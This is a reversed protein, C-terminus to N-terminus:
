FTKAQLERSERALDDCQQLTAEFAAARSREEVESESPFHIHLDDTSAIRINLSTFVAPDHKITEPAETAPNEHRAFEPITFEREVYTRPLNSLSGEPLVVPTADRLDLKQGNPLTFVYYGITRTSDLKAM